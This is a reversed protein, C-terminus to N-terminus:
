RDRLITQLEKVQDNGRLLRLKPGFDDVKWKTKDTGCSCSNVGSQETTEQDHLAGNSLFVHEDPADKSENPKEELHIGKPIELELKRRPSQKSSKQHGDKTGPM